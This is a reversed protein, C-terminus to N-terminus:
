KKEKEKTKMIKTEKIENNNSNKDLKQKSNGCKTSIAIINRKKNM